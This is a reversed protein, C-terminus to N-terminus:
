WFSWRRSKKQKTIFITPLVCFMTLLINGTIKRAGFHPADVPTAESKSSQVGISLEDVYKLVAEKIDNRSALKTKSKLVRAIEARQEDSTEISVNTKM